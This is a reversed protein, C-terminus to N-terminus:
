DEMMVKDYQSEHCKINHIKLASSLVSYLGSLISLELVEWGKNRFYSGDLKHTSLGRAERYIM